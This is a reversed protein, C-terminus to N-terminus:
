RGFTGFCAAEVPLVLPHGVAAPMINQYLLSIAGIFGDGTVAFAYRITALGAPRL